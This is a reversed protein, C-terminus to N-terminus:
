AGFQMELIAGATEAIFSLTTRDNPIPIAIPDNGATLRFGSTTTPLGGALTFRINQTLAQVLAYNATNPINITAAVVASLATSTHPAVATHDAQQLAPTFPKTM